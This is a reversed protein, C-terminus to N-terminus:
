GCNALKVQCINLADKYQNIREDKIKLQEQLEKCKSDENQKKLKDIEAKLEKNKNQLDQERGKAAMETEALKRKIKEVEGSGKTAFAKYSSFLIVANAALVLLLFGLM